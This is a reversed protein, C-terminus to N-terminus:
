LRDVPYMIKLQNVKHQYAEQQKVQRLSQALEQRVDGFKLVTAENKANVRILHYGFQTKVPDSIEGVGLAFAAQDFEPVMQGHGFDGLNGGRDKSPCNSYKAAADEFSIRSEKLEVLIEKAQEETDVLIHSANVTEGTTMESQHEDYYAKVETDTVQVKEVVKNIAYSALLEEKVAALQAKFAAEAEYLNRQADLVFLKQNIMQELIMMRGQENNYRAANPGMKMMMEEVDNETIANGNVRALVKSTDM